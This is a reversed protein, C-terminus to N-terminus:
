SPPNANAKVQAKISPNANQVKVKDEINEVFKAIEAAKPENGYIEEWRRVYAQKAWALKEGGDWGLVGGLVEASVFIVEAQQGIQRILQYRKGLLGIIGAVVIGITTWLAEQEVLWVWFSQDEM